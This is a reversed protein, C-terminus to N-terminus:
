SQRAAFRRGSPGERRAGFQDFIRCLGKRDKGAKRWIRVRRVRRVNRRSNRLLAHLPKFKSAGFCDHASPTRSAHRGGALAHAGPARDQFWVTVGARRDGAGHRVHRAQNRRTLADGDVKVNFELTLPMPSTIDTQWTLTTGDIAGEFTQQGAQGSMTGDFTTDSTPKVASSRRRRGWRPKSFSSGTVM